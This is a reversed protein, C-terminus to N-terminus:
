VPATAEAKYDPLITELNRVMPIAFISMAITTMALGSIVMMLGIGAGMGAGVLGSFAWDANKAAPEFLNDTLPGTVLYALPILLISLQSIAAFVRGQLDPPVKIQLVSIISVNNIPPFLAMVFLALGMMVPEGRTGLFALALGTIAMGPMMTLVRRKTGGWIAMLLTGALSGISAVSLLIGLIEANNSTRALIYPTELTIMAAFFFNTLATFVFIMLLPKRQWVFALGSWAEKWVSGRAQRGEESEPPRPIHIMLVVGVSLLFTVLDIIIIGLMGVLAFFVGTIAPAIIGSLPSTVLQVANARSRHNDPVLMTVSSIFAPGQFIDFTAQIIAVLYLHWLQFTGSAFTVLLLLTGAAQGTDALAMVYRRDWRDAIVGALSASILRPLWSFFAVLTLPTADGTQNYIYIGFALGTMRSGILSVTQTLLLTYFTLLKRRDSM